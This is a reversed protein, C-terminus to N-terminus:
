IIASPTVLLRCTNPPGYSAQNRQLKLFLIRALITTKIEMIQIMRVLLTHLGVPIHFCLRRTVPGIDEMFM